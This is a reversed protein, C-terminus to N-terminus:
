SSEHNFTKLSSKIKYDLNNKYFNYITEMTQVDGLTLASFISEVSFAQTTTCVNAFM